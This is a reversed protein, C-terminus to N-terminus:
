GQHPMWPTMMKEWRADISWGAPDIMASDVASTM